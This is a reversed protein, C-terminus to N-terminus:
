RSGFWILGAIGLGILGAVAILWWVGNGGDDTDVADSPLTIAQMTQTIAPAAHAPTLAVQGRQPYGPAELVFRNRGFAIQDGPHLVADLVDVGNVTVGSRADLRRLHIADGSLEIAVHREAVEAEDIDLGAGRGHGIVLADTIPVTKGFHAGTVGRLVVAVPGQRPAARSGSPLMTVISEDRDPKLLIAASGVNVVDGLRLLAKEVIPRANVHTRAAADTVELILGRPDVLIRAHRPQLAGSALVISNGEASGISVVGEGVTVDAHEGNPFSLRM